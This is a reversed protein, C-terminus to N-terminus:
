RLEAGCNPCYHTKSATLHTSDSSLKLGCFPCTIWYLRTFSWDDDYEKETRLWEGQKRGDIKVTPTDEMCRLAVHIGGRMSQGHRYPTPVGFSYREVIELPIKDREALIKEKLIDADIYRM